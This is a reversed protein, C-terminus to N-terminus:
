SQRKNLCGSSILPEQVEDCGHCLPDLSNPKIKLLNKNEHLDRFCQGYVLYNM